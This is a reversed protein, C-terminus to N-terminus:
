VSFFRFQVGGLADHLYQFQLQSNVPAHSNSIWSSTIRRMIHTAIPATGVQAKGAPAGQLRQYLWVPAGGQVAAGSVLFPAAWSISLTFWQVCVTLSCRESMRLHREQWTIDDKTSTPNPSFWVFGLRKKKTEFLERSLHRISVDIVADVLQDVTSLRAITSDINHWTMTIHRWM